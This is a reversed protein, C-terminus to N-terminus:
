LGAKNTTVLGALAGGALMDESRHREGIRGRRCMNRTGEARKQYSGQPM